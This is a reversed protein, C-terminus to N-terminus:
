SDFGADLRSFPNTVAEDISGGVPQAVKNTGLGVGDTGEVGDVRLGENKKKLVM